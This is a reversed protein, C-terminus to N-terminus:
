VLRMLDSSMCVGSPGYLQGTVCDVLVQRNGIEIPQFKRGKMIETLYAVDRILPAQKMRKAEKNMNEIEGSRLCMAESSLLWSGYHNRTQPKVFNMQGGSFALGCESMLNRLLEGPVQDLDAAKRLFAIHTSEDVLTKLPEEVKGFPSTMAARSQNPEEFEPM